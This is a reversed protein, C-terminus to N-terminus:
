QNPIILAFSLLLKEEAKRCESLITGSNIKYVLPSLHESLAIGIMVYFDGKQVETKQNYTREQELKFFRGACLPKRNKAKTGIILYM